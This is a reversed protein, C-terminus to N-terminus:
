LYDVIMALLEPYKTDASAWLANASYSAVTSWTVLDGENKVLPSCYAWNEYVSSEADMGLQDAPNYEHFVGFRDNEVLARRTATDMTLFDPHLLGEEYMTNYLTVLTRYDETYAPLWVEEDKIMFDTGYRTGSGKGYYGAPSWVLCNPLFSGYDTISWVELGEAHKHNKFARLMDIFEDVTAPMELGAEELWATNIWAQIGEPYNGNSTDFNEPLFVPLSYVGGDPTTSGVLAAPTEEFLATLNPMTEENLYPAWDLLLGEEMGYTVVNATSISYWIIDPLNGTGLMVSIQQAAEDSTPPATVEFTVDYGQEALWAELHKFIYLGNADNTDGDQRKSYVEITVPETIDPKKEGSTSERANEAKSTNEAQAKDEAATNDGSSGEKSQGCGGLCGATMIGALMMAFIRKTLNRKM